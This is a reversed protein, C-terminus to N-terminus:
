CPPVLVRVRSSQILWMLGVRHVPAADHAKLIGERVAELWSTDEDRHKAFGKRKGPDRRVVRQQHAAQRDQLSNGQRCVGVVLHTRCHVAHDIRYQIDASNPRCRGITCWHLWTWSCPAYPVTRCHVAYALMTCALCDVSSASRRSWNQNPELRPPRSRGWQTM